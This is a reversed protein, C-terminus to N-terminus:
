PGNQRHRRRAALMRILYMNITCRYPRIGAAAPPNKCRSHARQCADDPQPAAIRLLDPRCLGRVILDSSAADPADSSEGGMAKVALPVKQGDARWPRGAALNRNGQPRATRSSGQWRSYAACGARRGAFSCELRGLRGEDQALGPEGHGQERRRRITGEFCSAGASDTIVRSCSASNSKIPRYSSNPTGVASTGSVSVGNTSERPSTSASPSYDSPENTRAGCEVIASPPCPLQIFEVM